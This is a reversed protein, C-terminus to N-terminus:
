KRYYEHIVYWDTLFWKCKITHAKYKQNLFIMEFIECEFGDFPNKKRGIKVYVIYSKSFKSRISKRRYKKHNVISDSNVQFRKDELFIFNTKLKNKFEIDNSKLNLDWFDMETHKIFWSNNENITVYTSDTFTLDNTIFSSLLVSKIKNNAFLHFTVIQIVSLLIVLISIWKITKLYSKM